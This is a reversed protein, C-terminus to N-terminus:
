RENKKEMEEVLKHLIILLGKKDKAPLYSVMKEIKKSRQVIVKDLLLIGKKTLSIRVLRRDKKDEKRGAISMKCLKNILSTASPLEINLLNAIESMTVEKNKQLFLLTQIQLMSLRAVDSAFSMQEKMLRSLKFIEEVILNNNKSM